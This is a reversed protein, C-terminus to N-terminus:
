DGGCRDVPNMLDTGLDLNRRVTPLVKRVPYSDALRKELEFINNTDAIKEVPWSTNPFFASLASTQIAM